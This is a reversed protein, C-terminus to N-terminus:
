HRGLKLMNIAANIDRNWLKSLCDENFCCKLAWPKITRVSEPISHIRVNQAANELAETISTIKTGRKKEPKVHHSEGCKCRDLQVAEISDLSRTLCKVQSMLYEDDMIVLVDPMRMLRELLKQHPGKMSGKIHTMSGVKAAGFNIIARQIGQM